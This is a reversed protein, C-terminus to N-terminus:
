RRCRQVVFVPNRACLVLHAKFEASLLAAVSQWFPEAQPNIDEIMMWGGPALRKLGFHLSNLNALPSHLGDDIILDLEAPLHKELELFTDPDTQDVFYTKIRDEAFLAGRDFDAGFVEANPLFDRFARVSAGPRGRVTMNSIVQPNNSGLGIELVSRVNARDKLIRGLVFHYSHKHAKDSGYGDLLPQLAMAVDLHDAGWLEAKVMSIPAAGQSAAFQSLRDFITNASHLAHDTKQRSPGRSYPAYIELDFFSITRRGVLHKLGNKIRHHLAM